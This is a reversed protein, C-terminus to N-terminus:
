ASMQKLTNFIISSAHEEMQIPQKTMFESPQAKLLEMLYTLQSSENHPTKLHYRKIEKSCALLCESFFDETEIIKRQQEYDLCTVPM